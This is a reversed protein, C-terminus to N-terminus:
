NPKPKAQQHQHGQRQQAASELARLRAAQAAVEDKLEALDTSSSQTSWVSYLLALIAAIGSVWSGWASRGARQDEKLQRQQEQQLSGLYGGPQQVIQRGKPTISVYLTSGPQAVTVLGEAQLRQAVPVLVRVDKSAQELESINYAVHRALKPLLDHIYQDEQQPTM